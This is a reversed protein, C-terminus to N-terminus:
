AATLARGSAADMLRVRSPDFRLWVAQGDAADFEAPVSVKLSDRDVQVTLLKQPGVPEVVIITAPIMAPGAEGHVAIHEPRIGVVVPGAPVRSLDTLAVSVGHTVVATTGDSPRLTGELFNMPPNGIFSGVFRSAPFDYVRAPTDCQIIEGDRMVAIRDGLSLAEVQDHTVYVTTSKIERHLRRLEARMQLRLLADLNSLPEDMLLVEPRMVVARAVAVRQRQGGSLQSPFRDLLSGIQMLEAADRVRRAVEEGAVRRLRLGFAINEFVSMHPFVAYSQFVMAIGRQGPPRHTVDRTGIFIRGRDVEELGAICRLMTTKGCGSPGLFVMFEGDAIELDLDRVAVVKGFVKRVQALRIDAV